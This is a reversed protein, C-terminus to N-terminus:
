FLRREPNLQNEFICNDQPLFYVRNDTENREEENDESSEGDAEAEELKSWRKM